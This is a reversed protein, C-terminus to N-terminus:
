ILRIQDDLRALQDPLALKGGRREDAIPPKARDVGVIRKCWVAPYRLCLEQTKRMQDIADSLVSLEIECILIQRLGAELPGEEAVAAGLRDFRAQLERATVPESLALRATFDGNAAPAYFEYFSIWSAMREGLAATGVLQAGIETM